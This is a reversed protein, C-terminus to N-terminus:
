LYVALRDAASGTAVSPRRGSTPVSGRPNRSEVSRKDTARGQLILDSILVCRPTAEWRVRSCCWRCCASRSSRWRRCRPKPWASTRALNYAVVALTDSGFPRLALTAPLEKMTDVFVLLARPWRSRKLLPLHLTAGCGCRAPASRRATDDVAAPMRSYGAEVSQMAVASFRAVYAVCAPRRHRHLAGVRRQGALAVQIWGVPLFLGIAIVAGPVAYGLPCRAHRRPWCRTVRLVEERGVCLSASHWRLLTALLPRSARGAQLQGLEV